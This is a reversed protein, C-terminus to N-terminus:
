SLNLKNKLPEARNHEIFNKVNAKECFTTKREKNEWSHSIEKYSSEAAETDAGQIVM